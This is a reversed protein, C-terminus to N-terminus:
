VAVELADAHLADYEHVADVWARLRSEDEPPYGDWPNISICAEPRNGHRFTLRCLDYPGRHAVWEDARVATLNTELCFVIDGCACLSRHRPFLAFKTYRVRDVVPPFPEYFGYARNWARRGEASM